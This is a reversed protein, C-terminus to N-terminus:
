KEEAMHCPFPHGMKSLVFEVIAFYWRFVYILSYTPLQNKVRGEGVKYFIDAISRIGLRLIDALGLM